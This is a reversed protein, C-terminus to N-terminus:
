AQVKTIAGTLFSYDIGEYTKKNLCIKLILEHSHMIQRATGPSERTATSPNRM